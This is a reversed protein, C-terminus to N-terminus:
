DSHLHASSTEPKLEVDKAKEEDQLFPVTQAALSRRYIYCNKLVREYGAKEVITQYDTLHSPVSIYSEVAGGLQASYALARELLLISNVRTLPDSAPNAILPDCVVAKKGQLAAVIEGEKEAVATEIGDHIYGFPINLYAEPYERRWLELQEFDSEKTPRINIKKAIM